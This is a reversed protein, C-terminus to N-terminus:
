IASEYVDLIAGEYLGDLLRDLTGHYFGTITDIKVKKTAQFTIKIAQLGIDLLENASYYDKIYSTQALYIGYLKSTLKMDQVFNSVMDIFKVYPKSYTNNIIRKNAKFQIGTKLPTLQEFVKEKEPAQEVQESETGPTDITNNESVFRNFIWLNSSQSGNKRGTAEVTLIGLKIAKRKMRHFTAESIGYGNSKEEIKKLIYRISATAVGKVSAALRVLRKFAIMEGDTFEKKHVALFMEINNNFDKISDFQSLDKFKKIDQMQITFM